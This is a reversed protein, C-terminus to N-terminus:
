MSPFPMRGRWRLSRTWRAADDGAEDTVVVLMIERNDAAAVPAYKEIAQKIATVVM